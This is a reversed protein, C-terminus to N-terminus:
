RGYRLLKGGIGNIFKVWRERLTPKSLYTVAPVRLFGSRWYGDRAMSLLAKAAEERDSDSVPSFAKEM